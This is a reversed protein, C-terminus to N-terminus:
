KLLVIVELLKKEEMAWHQEKECCPITGNLICMEGRETLTYIFVWTKAVTFLASRFM